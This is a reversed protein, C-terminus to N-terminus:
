LLSYLFKMIPHFLYNILGSFFLLLIILSGVASYKEILSVDKKLLVLLIIGMDLPPIPLLNLFGFFASMLFIFEFLLILANFNSPLDLNTLLYYGLLGLISIFFYALLSFATILLAGKLPDKLRHYDVPIVKPWGIILPSKALILIAPLIVTGILDIHTLPNPTTFGLRKPTDDGLKTIVLAKFYNHFSFIFLLALWQLFGFFLDAFM